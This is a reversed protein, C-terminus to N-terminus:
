AEKRVYEAVRHEELENALDLAARTAALENTYPNRAARDWVWPVGEGYRRLRCEVIWISAM